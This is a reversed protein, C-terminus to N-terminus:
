KAFHASKKSIRTMVAKEPHHMPTLEYPSEMPTVIFKAKPLLGSYAQEHVRDTFVSFICNSNIV